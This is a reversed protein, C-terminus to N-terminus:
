GGAASRPASCSPGSPPLGRCWGCRWTVGCASAARRPGCRHSVNILGRDDSVSNERRKWENQIRSSPRMPSAAQKDEFWGGPAHEPRQSIATACHVLGSAHGCHPLLGQLGRPFGLGGGGRRRRRRRRGGASVVTAFSAAMAMEFQSAFHVVATGCINLAFAATHLCSAAHVICAYENV